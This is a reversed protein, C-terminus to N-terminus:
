WCRTAWDGNRLLVHHETRVVQGKVHLTGLALTATEALSVLDVRGVFGTVQRQM